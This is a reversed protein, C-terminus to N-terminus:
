VSLGDEGPPGSRNLLLLGVLLALVVGVSVGLQVISQHFSQASESGTLELRASASLIDRIAALIGIVLFPRVPFYNDRFHALVTHLIDVLIIVVLIGDLASILSAPYGGPTEFFTAVTRVLVDGAVLLLSVGIAGQLAALALRIGHGGLWGDRGTLPVQPLGGVAAREVEGAGALPSGTVAGVTTTPDGASRM